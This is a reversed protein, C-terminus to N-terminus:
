IENARQALAATPNRYSPGRAGSAPAPRPRSPDEPPLRAPPPPTSPACNHQRAAQRRRNAKSRELGSTLNAGPGWAPYGGNSSRARTDTEQVSGPDQRAARRNGDALPTGSCSTALAHFHQVLADGPDVHVLVHDLDRDPGRPLLRPGALRLDQLEARKVPHELLHGPLQALPAHRVHHHLGAPDIGLRHIVRQALLVEPLDRHDVRRVGLRQPPVLGVGFVARSQRLQEFAAQQPPRIDRRRLQLLHPVQGPVPHLRHLGAGRLDLPKGLRQFRGPDLEARNGAAYGARRGGRHDLRQDVPFAAAAHQRVQRDAPHAGRPLQGIQRHRQGAPEGTMVRQQAAQVQVPDGHEIVRHVAQILPDGALGRPPLALGAQELGEGPEAVHHRLRPQALDAGGRVQVEGRM